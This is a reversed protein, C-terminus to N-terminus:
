NLPCTWIANESGRSDVFHCVRSESLRMAIRGCLVIVIKVARGFPASEAEESKQRCPMKSRATGFGRGTDDRRARSVFSGAATRLRPPISTTGCLASNLAPWNTHECIAAILVPAHDIAQRENDRPPPINPLVSPPDDNRLPRGERAEKLFEASGTLGARPSSGPDMLFRRTKRVVSKGRPMSAQCGVPQWM